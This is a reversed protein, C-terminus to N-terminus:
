AAAPDLYITQLEQYSSLAEPGLERGLGSAKTGGFPVGPDTFYQNIGITGTEIRRAVDIGREHDSTWVTGGLGYESDNAIRVAEDVSDYRIISLVPGFIEERAIVADPAVDTFVTPEIYYGRTLHRPRGGGVSIKAGGDRGKAIYSEVRDRQRASVLPGIQTTEDFPDGVSARRALETFVEVVEDYRCRPALIRSNLWCTQGNNFLCAGFLPEANSALDADDLVIAASKGGLELTVPRLLEGCVAGITRGATTSGTFAVKNVDPQRVLYAGTERGGPLINIVGPPLDAAEAAEAVTYADLVAEPSPKLVVTCGVALLPALKAFTLAQPFNWPVIAAVVGLPVHRVIAKGGMFGTRLENSVQRNAIEVYYRLLPGPLDGEVARSVSIPMGNQITTRDSSESSRVDMAKAFREIHEGRQQPTWKSWGQTDVFAARAAAVANEVDADGVKPVSGVVQETSPSIVEIRESGSPAVWQGNAFFSGYEITEQPATSM